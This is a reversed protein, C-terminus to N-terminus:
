GGFSKTCKLMERAYNENCYSIRVAREAEAVKICYDRGILAVGCGPLYGDIVRIKDHFKINADTTCTEKKLAASRECIEKQQKRSKIGCGLIGSPRSFGPDLNKGAIPNLGEFEEQPPKSFNPPIVLM